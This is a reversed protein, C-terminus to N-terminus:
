ESGAAAKPAAARHSPSVYEDGGEITPMDELQRIDNASMWEGERAVRYAEYRATMDGRLLGQLDHQVFLTKRSERTLLAANMHQEVRKALPALCRVVLARSEEGINSYTADDTIGVASPPVGFVRVVDLNSLKRSALFEADVSSFAFREFKAGGDLVMFKGANMTGLFASEADKKTAGHQEDTLTEPFVLAGAASFGRASQAAAQERQTLALGFTERAVAIPSMGRIGDKTRHRVHLIEDDLFRDAGVTYRLRGSHLREVSVTMAPLPHLATVQGRGNREIQAFANGHILLDAILWERGAFATLGDHFEDQLVSYLPHDTAATSGGADSYRRLKLPVSATTEAILRICAQAVSLGASHDPSRYGAVGGQGFFEALYPDSARASKAEARNERRRFLDLINM